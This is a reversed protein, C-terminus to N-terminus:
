QTMESSIRRSLRERGSNVKQFRFLIGAEIGAAGVLTARRGAAVSLSATVMVQWDCLDGPHSFVNVSDGERQSAKFSELPLVKWTGLDQM